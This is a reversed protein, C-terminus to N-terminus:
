ERSVLARMLLQRWTNTPIPLERPILVRPLVSKLVQLEVLASAAADAESASSILDVGHSTWGEDEPHRSPNSDLTRSATHPVGQVSQAAM